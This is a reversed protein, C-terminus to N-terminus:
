FQYAHVRISDDAGIQQVVLALHGDLDAFTAASSRIIGSTRIEMATGNLSVAYGQLEVVLREGAPTILEQVATTAGPRGREGILVWNSGHAKGVIPSDAAAAGRFEVKIREGDQVKGLKEVVVTGTLTYLTALDM